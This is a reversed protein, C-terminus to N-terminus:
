DKKFEIDIHIHYVQDSIGSDENIKLTVDNKMDCKIIESSEKVEKAYLALQLAIMKKHDKESSTGTTMQEGTNM